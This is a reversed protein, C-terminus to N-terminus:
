KAGKNSIRSDYMLRQLIKHGVNQFFYTQDMISGPYNLVPNEDIATFLAVAFHSPCYLIHTLFDLLTDSLAGFSFLVMGNKHFLIINLNLHIRRLRQRRYTM